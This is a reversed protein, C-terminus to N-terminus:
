VVLDENYFLYIHTLLFLLHIFIFFIFVIDIGDEFSLSM